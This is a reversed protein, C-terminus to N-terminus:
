LIFHVKIVTLAGMDMMQRGEATERMNLIERREIM